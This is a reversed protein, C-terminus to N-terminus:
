QWDEIFSNFTPIDEDKLEANVKDTNLNGSDILKFLIASLQEAGREGAVSVPLKGYIDEWHKIKNLRVRFSYKPYKFNKNYPNVKCKVQLYYKGIEFEGELYVDKEKVGTLTGRVVFEYKGDGINKVWALQRFYGRQFFNTKLTDWASNMYDPVKFEGMEEVTKGVIDSM